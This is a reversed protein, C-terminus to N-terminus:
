SYRKFSSSRSVKSPSHGADSEELEDRDSSIQFDGISYSRVPGGPQEMTSTPPASLLVDQAPVGKWAEPIDDDQSPTVPGTSFSARRNPTTAIMPQPDSVSLGSLNVISRATYSSALSTNSGSSYVSNADDGAGSSDKAQLAKTAAAAEELEM